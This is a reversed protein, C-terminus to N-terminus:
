NGHVKSTVWTCWWAVFISCIITHRSNSILPIRSNTYPLWSFIFDMQFFISSLWSTIYAVIFVVWSSVLALILAFDFFISAALFETWDSSSSVKFIPHFADQNRNFWHLFQVHLNFFRLQAQLCYRCEKICPGLPCFSPGHHVRGCAWLFVPRSVFLSSGLLFSMACTWFMALLLRIGLQDHIKPSYLFQRPMVCGGLNLLDVDYAM